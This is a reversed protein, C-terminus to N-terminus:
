STTQSVWSAKWLWFCGMPSDRGWCGAIGLPTMFGVYDWAHGGWYAKTMRVFCTLPYLYGILAFDGIADNGSASFRIREDNHNRSDSETQFKISRMPPDISCASLRSRGNYCYLGNWDDDLLFNRAAVIGPCFLLRNNENLPSFPVPIQIYKHFPLRGSDPIPVTKVHHPSSAFTQFYEIPSPNKHLVWAFFGPVLMVLIGARRYSAVDERIPNSLSAFIDSTVLDWIPRRSPDSSWAAQCGTWQLRLNVSQSSM